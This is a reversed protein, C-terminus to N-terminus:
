QDPNFTAPLMQRGLSTPNCCYFKGCALIIAASYSFLLNGPCQVDNTSILSSSNIELLSTSSRSSILHRSSGPHVRGGTRYERTYAGCRKLWLKMQKNCIHKLKATWIYKSVNSPPSTVGCRSATWVSCKLLRQCGPINQIQYYGVTICCHCNTFVPRNYM